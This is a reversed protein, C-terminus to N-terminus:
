LSNAFKLIKLRIDTIVEMYKNNNMEHIVKERSLKRFKSNIKENFSEDRRIIENLQETKEKYYKNEYHSVHLGFIHNKDALLRKDFPLVDVDYNELIYLDLIDRYKDFKAESIKLKEHEIVNGDDDIYKYVSRSCNLIVKIKPNNEKLFKFFSDYSDKCCDLFGDFNNISVIKYDKIKNYYSVKNIRTSNTIFRNGGLVYVGSTVDFYTDIILYDINCEKIFVLFSKSLDEYICVNDYEQNSDLLSEDYEIPKSMLSIINVTEISRHVKFYKKYDKNLVSNFINRSSCSGM